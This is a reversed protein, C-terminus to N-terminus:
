YDKESPVHSLISFFDDLDIQESDLNDSSLACWTSCNLLNFFSNMIKKLVLNCFASRYHLLYVTVYAQGVAGRGLDTSYYDSVM